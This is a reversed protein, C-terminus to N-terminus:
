ETVVEGPESIPMGCATEPFSGADESDNRSRGGSIESNSLVPVVDVMLPLHDSATRIMTSVPVCSGQVTLDRSLFVHDIRLVPFPSSWTCMPRVGRFICQADRLTETIRRYARSTPGANFDGCLVVPGRCTTSKIWKPGLLEEVQAMREATRLGLHTNIVQLIWGGCDIEVWLAGRPEALRGSPDTPLPAARILRMPLRSLVADGYHETAISVAPHFYGAMGLREALEVAQDTLGTRTNGVDLEQLAIVDADCHSLVRAIRAISLRGDLGMCSHVNYTVVRISERRPALSRSPKHVIRGRAQEAAVRLEDPRAFAANATEICTYDPVLAFAHTEEPGIGGHAGKEFVFSLPESGARWGAFVIDGADPHHCVRALDESAAEAFPHDEGLLLRADDPLTFRGEATWAMARGSEAATLVLPVRGRRALEQCSNTLAKADIRRPLYIHGIPGIAAILIDEKALPFAQTGGQDNGPFSTSDRVCVGANGTRDLIAASESSTKRSLLSGFVEHVVDTIV